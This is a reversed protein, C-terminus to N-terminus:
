QPKKGVYKDMGIVFRSFRWVGDTGRHLDTSYIVSANLILGDNAATVIAYAYATAENATMKEIVINSIAHRRQDGQQRIADTTTKIIAERGKINVIPNVSGETVQFVADETFLSGILDSQAEDYYLGWRAFVEQIHLRDLANDGAPPKGLAKLEVLGGKSAWAQPPEGAFAASAFSLLTVSLVACFSSLRM